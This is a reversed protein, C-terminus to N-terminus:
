AARRRSRRALLLAGALALGMLPWPASAPQSSLHGLHLATPAVAAIMEGEAFTDLLLWTAAIGGNDGEELVRAQRGDVMMVASPGHVMASGDTVEIATGLEIGVAVSDPHEYVMSVLRGLLYDYMVRPQISAGPLLGLGPAVSIYGALFSDSSQYDIDDDTPTPEASMWSGAAAAAANDLLLPAGAAWRAALAPTVGHDNMLTVQDAMVDQNEGTMLIAGAGQIESVLAHPDSEPVLIATEVAPVGLAALYDAWTEAVLTAQATDTYAVAVVLTPAGAAAALDAFASMAAGAEEDQLDGGLFLTGAGVPASLFDFSRENIAPAPEDLVGGVIPRRAALDYSYPGEPLVHYAVNHISLTNQPGLYNAQEAAGYSEEDLVVAAYWGAVDSAVGESIVIGTGWDVGLGVKGGPSRQAAQLLRPIRARELVHQDVIAEEIGFRLGRTVTDDAGYWLEIADYELGDWPWNDGTYGAIMYRSQVAAGASNGGLAAGMGHLAELAAETPTNAVVLMAITQDGGLIYIGDVDPGLMALKDPDDADDRVQIDPVTAVCTAGGALAQCAEEIQEAREQALELNEQREAPTIAYADTAYTIPLVRLQVVGDSDHTIAQQAFLALTDDEYAAGIPVFPGSLGQAALAHAGALFLAILMILCTLQLLLLHPRRTFPSVM